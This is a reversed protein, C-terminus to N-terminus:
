EDQQDQEAEEEEDECMRGYAYEILGRCAHYNGVPQIYSETRGAQQRTMTVVVADAGVQEILEAACRNLAHKVAQQRRNM